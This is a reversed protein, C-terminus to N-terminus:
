AAVHWEQKKTFRLLTSPHSPALQRIQSWFATFAEPGHQSEIMERVLMRVLLDRGDGLAGVKGNEMRSLYEPTVGIFEALQRSQWNAMKRLYRVESGTLRGSKTLVANALVTSLHDIRPILGSEFECTVCVYVTIGALYVDDLGSETFHYPRQRTARRVRMRQQCDDCKL